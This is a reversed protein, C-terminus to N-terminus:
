AGSRSLRLVDERLAKVEGQLAKLLALDETRRRDIEALVVRVMKAVDDEDDDYMAHLEEVDRDLVKALADRRRYPVPEQDNEWRSVPSGTIGLAAGLEKQSLKKDLRWRELRAGNRGMEGITAYCRRAIM